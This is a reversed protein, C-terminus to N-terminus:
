LAGAATNDLVGGLHGTLNLGSVVAEGQGDLGYDIVSVGGNGQKVAWIDAPSLGLLYCLITKNVADHAVVLATENNNLGAVILKWTQVSRQWVQQISEGSPMEVTHPDCQWAALLDPWGAKIEEELCGEWEGHAIEILGSCSTLPVAKTQASLIAEATQRPRAMSSTYARNLEFKKLYLAAAQAQAQGKANLPIDIQGQFRGERNWNTEGHRVLLLRPGGSRQPLPNELHNITNLSEIQVLGGPRLNLVSLSCNNVRYRNFNSAPLGLAALLLCRLIGNHAVVLVTHDLEPPHQEQLKQWFLLAQSHLEQVPFYSNGDPQQLQFQHPAEKWQQYAIPHMEAVQERTLGFWPSLNIELLLESSTIATNGGHAGLLLQATRQARQLPSCWVADFQLEHLAAGLLRAQQEGAESLVSADERGQIRGEINFSSLGHRVLLIRTAM